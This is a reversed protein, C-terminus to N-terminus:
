AVAFSPTSITVAAVRGGGGDSVLDKTETFTLTLEEDSEWDTSVCGSTGDVAAEIEVWDGTSARNLM